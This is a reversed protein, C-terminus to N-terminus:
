RTPKAGALILDLGALFAEREDHTRVQEALRHVFPYQAPDRRTWREVIAALVAPRDSAAFKHRAAAATQAATGLLYHVYASVCHFLSGRSVGLREFQAASREFVEVMAPQWPERALQTGVWPHAEIADFVSLALARLAAAPDSGGAIEAMAGSLVTETAVSLLADKDPVHWYIAGSGTSLRNALARFTLAREGEADLIEIAAAVIRERSLADERREPGKPRQEM